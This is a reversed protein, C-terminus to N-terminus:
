LLVKFNGGVYIKIKMDNDKIRLLGDKVLKRIDGFIKSCTIRLLEYNKHGKIAAVTHNGTYIFNYYLM